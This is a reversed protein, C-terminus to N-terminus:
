NRENTRDKILCTEEEAYQFKPDIFTRRRPWEAVAIVPNYIVALVSEPALQEWEFM